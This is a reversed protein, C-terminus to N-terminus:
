RFISIFVIPLAIPNKVVLLDNINASIEETQNLLSDLPNTMKKLPLFSQAVDQFFAHDRKLGKTYAEVQLKAEYM